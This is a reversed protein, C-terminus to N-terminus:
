AFFRPITISPNFSSIASILSDGGACDYGQACRAPQRYAGACGAHRRDHPREGSLQLFGGASKGRLRMTLETMEEGNEDTFYAAKFEEWAEDGSVYRVSLSQCDSLESIKALEQGIHDIEAQSLDADMFVALQKEQYVNYALSTSGVALICFLAAAAACLMRYRASHVRRATSHTRPSFHSGGGEHHNVPSTVAKTLVEAVEVPMTLSEKIQMMDKKNM